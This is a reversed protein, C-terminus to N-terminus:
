KGTLIRKWLPPNGKPADAQEIQAIAAGPNAKLTQSAKHFADSKSVAEIHLCYQLRVRYLM